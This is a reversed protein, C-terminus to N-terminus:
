KRVRWEVPYYNNIRGPIIKVWGLNFGLYKILCWGNLATNLQITNKRLYNLATELDVEIFQIRDSLLNSMALAHAPILENRSIRGLEIGANIMKFNSFLIEADHLHSKRIAHVQDKIKIFEFQEPSAIWGTIIELEGPNIKEIKEGEIFETHTETNIKKLVSIFLGEGKVKDPYFRYGFENKIIGWGAAYEIDVVELQPSGVSLQPSSVASQLSGVAWKVIEEDEEESYSCTAYILLGNQKLCPMIDELIRKQRRGCMRVNEESWEKMANKDKRFLGSGSCPADVIIVDFYDALKTFDHPDNNTIMVNENGWKILNENLIQVRTRIVENSILLSDESLIGSILTSKGGPAACLDLIRLPKQLDCVQSFIHELFMSSAEQVYYTGAHFSPDLTFSPRDDLYYGMNCWPIKNGQKFNVSNKKPNVRISVPAAQEHATIFATEDFGDCSKIQDIFGEPFNAM